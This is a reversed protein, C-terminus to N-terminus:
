LSHDDIFTLHWCGLMRTFKFDVTYADSDPQDFEIVMTSDPSRVIKKELRREAQIDASPYLNGKAMYEDRSVLRQKALPESHTTGDVYGMKLPFRVHQLQFEWDTEFRALFQEFSYRCESAHAAPPLVSAVLM